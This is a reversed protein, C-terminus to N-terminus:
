FPPAQDDADQETEAEPSSAPGPDSPSYNYAADQVAAFGQSPRSGDRIEILQVETPCLSVGYNKKTIFFPRPECNIRAITGFSFSPVKGTPIPAGSGDFFVPRNDIKQGFRPSDKKKVTYSEAVGFNIVSKGPLPEKDADLAVKVFEVGQKLIADLKEVASGMGDDRLKDIGYQEMEAMVAAAFQKAVATDVLLGTSYRRKDEGKFAVAVLLKPFVLEGRPSLLLPRRTRKKTSM